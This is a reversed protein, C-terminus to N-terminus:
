VRSSRLIKALIWMRWPGSLTDKLPTRIGNASAILNNLLNRLIGWRLTDYKKRKKGKKINNIEKIAEESYGIDLLFITIM